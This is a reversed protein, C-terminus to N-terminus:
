RPTREENDNSPQTTSTQSTDTSASAVTAMPGTEEHQGSPPAAASEGPRAPVFTTCVREGGALTALRQVHVGLLRAFLETEAECLQPFEAAIRQMPCHGQCLQVGERPSAMGVPRASAAFGDDALAEALARAREAPDPGVADVHAAYREELRAFQEHAFAEVAADGIHRAIFRLADVAVDSDDSRLRRHGAPTVVYTRAPRGRRGTGAMEAPTIDGSETLLELHRRVATPTLELREALTVATVPGLLLVDALM